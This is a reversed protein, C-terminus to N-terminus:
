VTNIYLQGNSCLPCFDQFIVWKKLIKTRQTVSSFARPDDDYQLYWFQCLTKKNRNDSNYICSLCCKTLAYIYIFSRIFVIVNWKRIFPYFKKQQEYCFQSDNGYKLLSCSYLFFDDFQQLNWRVNKTCKRRWWLM